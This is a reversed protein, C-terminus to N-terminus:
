GLHCWVPWIAVVEVSVRGGGRCVCLVVCFLEFESIFPQSSAIILYFNDLLLEFWM